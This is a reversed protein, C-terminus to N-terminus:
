AMDEESIEIAKLVFSEERLPCFPPIVNGREIMPDSMGGITQKPHICIYTGPSYLTGPGPTKYLQRLPCVICSSVIHLDM